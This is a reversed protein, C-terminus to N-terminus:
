CCREVLLVADMVSFIAANAGIGLALTAIVTAAFGPRSRLGRVAFRVDQWWSALWERSAHRTGPQRPMDTLEMSTTLCASTQDWARAFPNFGWGGRM